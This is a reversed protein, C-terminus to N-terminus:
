EISEWQIGPKRDGPWQVSKGRGVISCPLRFNYGCEGSSESEINPCRVVVMSSISNVTSIGPFKILLRTPDELAGAMTLFQKRSLSISNDDRILTSYIEVDSILDTLPVGTTDKQVQSYVNVSFLLLLLIIFGMTNARSIKLEQTNLCSAVSWKHEKGILKYDFIKFVESLWILDEV